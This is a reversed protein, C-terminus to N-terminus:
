VEKSTTSKLQTRKCSENGPLLAARASRILTRTIGDPNLADRVVMGCMAVAATGIWTTRGAGSNLFGCVGRGRGSMPGTGAPGTGDFGPM